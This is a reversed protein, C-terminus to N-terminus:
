RNDGAGQLKRKEARDRLKKLNGEAIEELPIDLDWALSAIYWLVDGLEDKLDARRAESVVGAEDRYIKKVKNLVEDAEGGLGLAPYLVKLHNANYSYIATERAARQYAKFANIEAKM